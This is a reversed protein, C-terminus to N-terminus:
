LQLGNETRWLKRYWWKHGQHPAEENEPSVFQVGVCNEAIRILRKCTIGTRVFDFGKVAKGEVWFHFLYRGIQNSLLWGNSGGWEMLEFISEDWIYLMDWSILRGILPRSVRMWMDSQRCSHRCHWYHVSDACVFFSYINCAIKETMDWTMHDRLNIASYRFHFEQVYDTNYIHEFTINAIQQKCVWECDSCPKTEAKRIKIHQNMWNIWMRFAFTARLFILKVHNPIQIGVTQWNM